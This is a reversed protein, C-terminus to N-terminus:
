FIFDKVIIIIKPIFFSDFQIVKYIKFNILACFKGFNMTEALRVHHGAMLQMQLNVVRSPSYISHYQFNM